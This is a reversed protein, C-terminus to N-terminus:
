LKQEAEIEIKLTMSQSAKAYGLQRPMGVPTADLKVNMAVKSRPGDLKSAVGFATEYLGARMEAPLELQKTLRLLASKAARYLLGTCYSSAIDQEHYKFREEDSHEFVREILAPDLEFAEIGALALRLELDTDGGAGYGSLLEDYGGIKRFAEAPVVHFGKLQNRSLGPSTAMHATSARMFHGFTGEPMSKEIMRTANEALVTDADCFLLLDSTAAAAGANRAKWNSFYDENNLCIVRAEPYANRVYDGTADPCSFDVVILEAFPQSAMRPLSEKM